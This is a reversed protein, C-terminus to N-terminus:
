SQSDFIKYQGSEPLGLSSLNKKKKQSCIVHGKFYRRLKSHCLVTTKLIHNKSAEFIVKKLTPKSVISLKIRDPLTGTTRLAWITKALM